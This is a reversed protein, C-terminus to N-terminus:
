ANEEFPVMCLRAPVPDTTEVFKASRPWGGVCLGFREGIQSLTREWWDWRAPDAEYTEKSCMLRYCLRGPKLNTAGAWYVDGPWISQLVALVALQM